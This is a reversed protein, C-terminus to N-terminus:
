KELVEDVIAYRESNLVTLMTSYPTINDLEELQGSLIINLVSPSYGSLLISGLEDHVVPFKSDYMELNWYIVTPLKYRNKNYLETYKEHTAQFPAGYHNANNFQMDSLILLYEPMDSSPVKNKIATDLILKMAKGFDTSGGWSAHKTKRYKESFNDCDSLDVLSPNSEFTIFADKFVNTNQEAVYIGLGIAVDMPTGEMSGSVDILPLIKKANAVESLKPLSDWAVNCYNCEREIDEKDSFLGYTFVKNLRKSLDYPNLTSANMKLDGTSVKELFKNYNDEDNRYIAKTHKYMARSPVKSYEVESWNRDTMKTEFLNLHKRLASVRKRYDVVNGKFISRVIINLARKMDKDKTHVSPLWKALLSINDHPLCLKELLLYHEDKNFEQYILSLLSGKSKKNETKSLIYVVDKWSGFHPILNVIKCFTDPAENALTILFMNGVLKEGQGGRVDRLYFLLKIAMKEDLKLIEKFKRLSDKDNNLFEQRISTADSFIDLFYNLTEKYADAGNHTKTQNKSNTLEMDILQKLNM